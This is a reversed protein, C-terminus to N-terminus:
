RVYLRGLTSALLDDIGIFGGYGRGFLADPRMIEIIYHWLETRGTLDPQKGLAELALGVVGDVDLCVLGVAIAMILFLLIALPLRKKRTQLGLALCFSAIILTSITIVFSTGSKAGVLMMLSVVIAGIRLLKNKIGYDGFILLM